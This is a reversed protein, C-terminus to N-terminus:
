ALRGAPISLSLTARILAREHFRAILPGLDLGLVHVDGTRAFTEGPVTLSASRTGDGTTVPEVITARLVELNTALGAVADDYAAGVASVDGTILMDLDVETVTRRRPYALVGATGPITRDSGRIEGSIWLPTLDPIDWAPGNLALGAITLTGTRGYHELAGM